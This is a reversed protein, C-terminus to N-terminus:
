ALERRLAELELAEAEADEAMVEDAVRKLDDVIYFAFAVFFALIFITVAIEFPTLHHKM